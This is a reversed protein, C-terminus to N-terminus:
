KAGKALSKKEEKIQEVEREELNSGAKASERVGTLGEIRDAEAEARFLAAEEATIEVLKLHVGKDADLHKAQELTVEGPGGVPTPRSPRYYGPLDPILHPTDPAGGLTLQLGYEKKPM